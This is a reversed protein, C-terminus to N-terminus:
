HFGVTDISYLSFLLMFIRRKLTNHYFQQSFFREHLEVSSLRICQLYIFQFNKNNLLSIINRKIEILAAGGGGLRAM